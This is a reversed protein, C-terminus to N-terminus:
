TKIEILFVTTWLSSFIKHIIFFVLNTRWTAFISRTSVYDTNATAYWDLYGISQGQATM